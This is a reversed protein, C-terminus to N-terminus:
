TDDGKIKILNQGGIKQIEVLDERVLRRTMRWVTTKPLKFKERIESEFAEGGSDALYQLVDRDEIRLHQKSEFIKTIDVTRTTKEYKLKDKPHRYLSALSIFIAASAAIALLLTSNNQLILLLPETTKPLAQEILRKASSAYQEADLYREQDFAQNAKALENQAENVAIGKKSAQEITKKANDIIVTAQEKSGVAGLTYSVNQMGANMTLIYQNDISTISVPMSSIGMITSGVPFEASFPVSANILLTWISGDKSILDPTIYLINTEMDGLTDVTVVGNSVAYNLPLNRENTVIMDSYVQGLIPISVRPSTGDISFRYDVVVNGDSYVKLLLTNAAYASQASASFVSLLIIVIITISLIPIKNTKM